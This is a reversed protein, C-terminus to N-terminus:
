NIRFLVKVEGNVKAASVFGIGGPTAAVKQVIEDEGVPTPPDGAGTLKAKLWLKKVGEPTLGIAGYFKARTDGQERVDFLVARTGGVSKSDLAYLNKLTEADLASVGVSKNAM